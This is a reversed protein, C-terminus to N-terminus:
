GAGAIAARQAPTPKKTGRIYDWDAEPCLTECHVKRGALASEREINIALREGCHKHGYAILRLYGITTGCKAAFAARADENPLKQIFEKLSTSSM